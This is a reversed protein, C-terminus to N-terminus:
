FTVCATLVGASVWYTGRRFDGAWYYMGALAAYELILLIAVTKPTM